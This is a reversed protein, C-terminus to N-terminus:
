EGQVEKEMSVDVTVNACLWSAGTAVGGGVLFAIILWTIAGMVLRDAIDAIM